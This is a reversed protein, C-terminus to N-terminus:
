MVDFRIFFTNEVLQAITFLTDKNRLRIKPVLM